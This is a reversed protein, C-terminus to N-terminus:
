TVKSERNKELLFVFGPAVPNIARWVVEPIRNVVAHALVPSLQQTRHFVVHQLGSCISFENLWRRLTWYSASNADLIANSGLFRMLGVSFKRPLWHVIPWFTHPEIPWLLNPGAFYALGGPKLLRHISAILLQPSAVHEYVQNCIVIDAIADPLSLSEVPENIFELNTSKGALAPWTPWPEPDIAYVHRVLPAFNASIVGNGCGLDCIVAEKLEISSSLRTQIVSLIQQAKENRRVAGWRPLDAASATSKGEPCKM